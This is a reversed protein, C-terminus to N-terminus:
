VFDSHATSEYARTDRLADLWLGSSIVEIRIKHEDISEGRAIWVITGAEAFAQGALQEGFVRHLASGEDMGDALLRVPFSENLADSLMAGGAESTTAVELTVRVADPEPFIRPFAAYMLSGVNFLREHLSLDAYEEWLTQEPMEHAVNIIEGKSLRKGIVHHLVVQAADEPELDQLAMLCVDYIEGTSLSAIDDFELAELLAVYDQTNWSGAIERLVAFRLVRM